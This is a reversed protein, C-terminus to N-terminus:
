RGCRSSTSRATSSGPSRIPPTRTSGISIWPNRRNIRYEYDTIASGGDNEPPDWSLTVQGMEVTPWFIGPLTRCRKARDRLHRHRDRGRDRRLHLRRPVRRRWMPGYGLANVGRVQFVYERGNTLNPVTASRESPDVRVWDGFVGVSERWRYEYRVIASDGSNDPTSWRLTVRGNGDNATLGLSSIPVTVGPPAVRAELMAEENPKNGAASTVTDAPVTITLTYNHAVRETRPTVTTTFIRNDTTQLAAITPNCSIPNNASDTCAPEQQTTIDTRTFGVVTESFSFRMTFAGEVPPETGSMMEVTLPTVTMGEGSESWNSTGEDNTARVQVQYVTGAKLDDFRILHSGRGRTNRM